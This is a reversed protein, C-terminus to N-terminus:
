IQTLIVTGYPTDFDIPECISVLKIKNRKFCKHRNLILETDRGLRDVKHVVVFSGPDAIADRQLREFDPRDARRGSFDDDIYIDVLEHANQECWQRALREQAQPSWASQEESSRRIYVRARAM